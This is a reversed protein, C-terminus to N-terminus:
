KGLMLIEHIADFASKIQKLQVDSLEDRISSVNENIKDLQNVIKSVQENISKEKKHPSLKTGEKVKKILTQASGESINFREALIERTKGKIEKGNILINEKRARELWHLYDEVIKLKDEEKLKLLNRNQFNTEHLRLHTIIENEDQSIIKCYIEELHEYEKNSDNEIIHKIAAFRRHGSVITYLNKDIQKVVLNQELGHTKISEILDELEIIPYPNNTEDVLNEIYLLKIHEEQMDHKIFSDEIKKNKRGAFSAFPDHKEKSM